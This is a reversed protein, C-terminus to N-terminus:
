SSAAAVLQAACERAVGTAQSDSGPMTAWGQKVVFGERQWQDTNKLAALKDTIGLDARAQHVCVPVLQDKVAQISMENASASARGSTVVWGATISVVAFLVAGIAAGLIFSFGGKPM